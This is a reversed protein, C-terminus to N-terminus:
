PSVLLYSQTINDHYLFNIKNVVLQVANTASSSHTGLMVTSIKDNQSYNGTITSPKYQIQTENNYPVFLKDIICVGQYNTNITPIIASDFLYTMSGNITNITIFLIDNNSTTYGNFFSVNIGNLDSVVANQKVPFSWNIYSKSISNIFHWGSYNYNNRINLSTSPESGNGYIATSSYFLTPQIIENQLLNIDYLLKQIQYQLTSIRQNLIYNSVSM